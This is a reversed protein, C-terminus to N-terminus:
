GSWVGKLEVFCCAMKVMVMAMVMIGKRVVVVDVVVVILGYEGVM